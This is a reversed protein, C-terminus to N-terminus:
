KDYNVQDNGLSGSSYASKLRSLRNRLLFLKLVVAFYLCTTTHLVCNGVYDYACVSTNM